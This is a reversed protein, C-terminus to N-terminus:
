ALDEAGSRAEQLRPGQALKSYSLCPRLVQIDLQGDDVGGRTTFPRRRGPAKECFGCTTQIEM